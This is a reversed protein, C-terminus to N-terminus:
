CNKYLHIRNQHLYLVRDFKLFYSKLIRLIDIVGRVCNDILRSKRYVKWFFTIDRSCCLNKLNQVTKTSTPSPTPQLTWVNENESKTICWQFYKRLIRNQIVANRETYRRSTICLAIFNNILYCYFWDPFGKKKIQPIFILSILILYIHDHKFSISTYGCLKSM